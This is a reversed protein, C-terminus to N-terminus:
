KWMSQNQPGQKNANPSKNMQTLVKLLIEKVPKIHYKKKSPEEKMKCTKKDAPDDEVALKSETKKKHARVKKLKKEM